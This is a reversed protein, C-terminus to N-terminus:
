RLLTVSGKKNIISNDTMTAKLVYIYVTGPQLKGKYTGDWGGNINTTQWILQGWQNFISFEMSKITSSYVKLLDNNGDNNPTFVNPVFIDLKVPRGTVVSYSATDICGTTSLGIAQYVANGTAPLTQTQATQDPFASAPLWGTVQYAISPDSVPSLTFPSGLPVPNAVNSMLSFTFDNVTVVFTAAKSCTGSTVTYSITTSGASVATVLGSSSVTAVTTNSSSWVGGPTANTLATTNTGNKCISNNGAITAVSISNVTVVILARPGECGSITQSVYYNTSGATSTGPTPAVSTGTGGTASTYWILNSGTATLQAATAGECYLVPSSVVPAAPPAPVANVVAATASTCGSANQVTITYNGPVVNTFTAAPQFITGDISYTLGTGTPATVLITGTTVACTPQAITFTAAAPVSPAANVTATATSTCGDTNRVSITYTGAAVNNFTAGSQFNTGDISYTIGTGAPSNIVITGTSIVCGPQTVTFAPAAPAAPATNVTASVTSTCGSGNQVTVTYTGSAVNNFTTATQFTTGNISYALGAGTPATIMIAGTAILCTPQTVTLIAAAPASPATTITAVTASSCGATNRVNITYTGPAVNIFTTGTQFTTGNISYTLGAGTPATIVITGTPVTCTPQTLTFTAAAPQAPVASVVATATSTCGAANKVTVIFTGPALGAFTTSSQFNIGDISYTLGTGLPSTVTITGTPVSCTPQLLTTTVAGPLTAQIRMNNIWTANATTNAVGPTEDTTGADGIIWAAASTYQDTSLYLNQGANVSAKQVTQTQFTGGGAGIGFTISFHAVSRNAPNVVIVGDGGNALGISTWDTVATYGTTPYVYSPSSPTLPTASNQQIYTSTIPVVYTYDHNVDTPDDTGAPIKLNRDGNNYILIISGYPVKEWNANNAFRYHGAAIGSGAGAYWGNHDDFIWNRLDATSDTCTRTGVVVLEIFEKAGNTGQSLENVVLNFQAKATSTILCLLLLVTFSGVRRM